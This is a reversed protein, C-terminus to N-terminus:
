AARRIEPDFYHAARPPSLLRGTRLCWEDRPRAPRGPYECFAGQPMPWHPAGTEQALAALEAAFAPADQAVADVPDLGIDNASYAGANWAEIVALVGDLWAQDGRWAAARLMSDGAVRSLFLAVTAQHCRAQSVCWLAAERQAAVAPDFETVVKHWLDPDPQDVAHLAGIPGTEAQANQRKWARCAAAYAAEQAQFERRLRAITMAEDRLDLVADPKRFNQALAGAEAPGARLLRLLMHVAALDEPRLDALGQAGHQRVVRDIIRAVAAPGTEPGATPIPRPTLADILEHRMRSVAAPGVQCTKSAAPLLLQATGERRDKPQRGARMRRFVLGATALTGVVAPARYPSIMAARVTDPLVTLIIVPGAALATM